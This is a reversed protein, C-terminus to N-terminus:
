PNDGNRKQERKMKGDEEVGKQEERSRKARKNREESKYM